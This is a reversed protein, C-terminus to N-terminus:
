IVELWKLEEMEKMKDRLRYFMEIEDALDTMKEALEDRDDAEWDFEDPYRLDHAKRRQVEALTRLHDVLEKM